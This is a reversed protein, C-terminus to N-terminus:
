QAVKDQKLEVLNVSAGDKKMTVKGDIIGGEIVVLKSTVVDGTIQGKQKVEVVERAVINGEIVGAVEMGGVNVNGKLLSKEGLILWDAEVNGTVRGDIKLTGKTVINGDVQTNKGIFSELKENKGSFM